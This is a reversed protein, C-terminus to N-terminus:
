PRTGLQTLLGDIMQLLFDVDALSPLFGKDRDRRIRDLNEQFDRIALVRDVLPTNNEYEAM